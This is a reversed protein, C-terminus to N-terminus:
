NLVEINQIMVPKGTQQYLQVVSSRDGYYADSIAIARDLDPTDDYIGWAEGIYRDRIERYREVMGPRMSKMTNEILPHPRWLLAIEEQNDRFIRLTNEIKEIWKENYHLFTSISINYFIVKKLEGNPKGIIRM